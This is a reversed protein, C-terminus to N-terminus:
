IILDSSKRTMSFAQSSTLQSPHVPYQYYGVSTMQPPAVAQSPYSSM